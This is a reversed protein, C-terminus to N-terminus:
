LENEEMWQTLEVLKKKAQEHNNIGNAYYKLVDRVDDLQDLLNRILVDKAKCQKQLEETSVPIGGPGLPIYKCRYVNDNHLILSEDKIEKLLIEKEQKLKNIEVVGSFSIVVGILVLLTIEVRNM